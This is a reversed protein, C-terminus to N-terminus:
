ARGVFLSDFVLLLLGYNLWAASSEEIDDSTETESSCTLDLTFKGRLLRGHYGVLTTDTHAGWLFEMEEQKKIPWGGIGKEMDVSFEIASFCETVEMKADSVSDDDGPQAWHRFASESEHIIYSGVGESVDKFEGYEYYGTNATGMIIHAGNMGNHRGTPHPIGIALWSLHDNFVLRVRMTKCDVIEWLLHLEQKQDPTMTLQRHHGHGGTESNVSGLLELHNSYSSADIFEKFGHVCQQPTLPDSIFDPVVLQDSDTCSPWYDGHCTAGFQGPACYPWIQDRMSTCNFGMGKEACHDPNAEETHPMCRMWCWLENEACSDAAVELQRFHDPCGITVVDSSSATAAAQRIEGYTLEEDYLADQPPLLMCGYWLREGSQVRLTIGHAPVHVALDTRAIKRIAAGLLFVLTDDEFTAKVVDGDPRQVLFEGPDAALAPTFAVLFGPDVHLDAPAEAMATYAHFHELRLGASAADELTAYTRGARTRMLLDPAQLLPGLRHLLADMTRSVLRRFERIDEGPCGELDQEDDPSVALTRREVRGDLTSVKGGCEAAQTLAARRLAGYNPISSIACLGDSLLSALSATDGSGNELESFPIVAPTFALALSLLV